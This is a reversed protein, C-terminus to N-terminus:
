GARVRYFLGGHGAPAGDDVVQLGKEQAIIYLDGVMVWDKLGTSREVRYVQGPVSDFQLWVKGSGFRVPDLALQAPLVILPATTLTATGQNTASGDANLSFSFLPPAGMAPFSQGGTSTAGAPAIIRDVPGLASSSALIRISAGSPWEMSLNALQLPTLEAFEQLIVSTEPTQQALVRVRYLTEPAALALKVALRGGPPGGFVGGPLDYGGPMTSSLNSGTNGEVWRRLHYKENHGPNAQGPPVGALDLRQGAFDSRATLTAETQFVGDMVSASASSQDKVPHLGLAYGLQRAVAEGVPVPHRYVEPAAPIGPGGGAIFVVIRAPSGLNFRTEQPVGGCFGHLSGTGSTAPCFFVNMVKADPRAALPPGTQFIMGRATVGARRFLAETEQRVEEKWLPDQYGPPVEAAPMTGPSPGISQGALLPDAKVEFDAAHGYCFNVLVPEVPALAPMALSPLTSEAYQGAEGALVLKLYLGSGGLGRSMLSDALYEWTLVKGSGPTQGPGADGTVALAETWDTSNYGFFLRVAPLAFESGPGLSWTVQVRGTAEDIVVVPVATFAANRTDVVVPGSTAAHTAAAVPQIWPISALVLGAIFSFPIKM